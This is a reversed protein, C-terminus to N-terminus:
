AGGAAEEESLVLYLDRATSARLLRKRLGPNKFMRSIRALAKLHEGAATQPAILAFFFHTPKGTESGFDVGKRSRAFCGVLSGASELKGHPIAIGDGIATSGLNERDTLVRVLEEVGAGQQQASLVLALERIVDAKKTSRIEALIQEESIFDTIKM